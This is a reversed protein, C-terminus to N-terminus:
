TISETLDRGPVPEAAAVGVQDRRIVDALRLRGTRGASSPDANGKMTMDRSEMVLAAKVQRAMTPNFLRILVSMARLVPRPVRAVKGPRGAVEQVIRTFDAFSLDEPGGVEVVTKQLSPDFIATEVVEAVDAASVFNVPNQGSGFIRTKGTRILPEGVVMMWTEMFPTARVITWRLSSERLAREARAKMQFLDMPHDASAGVVSLLVFHEVGASEAAQILSRNGQWDITSPSVSAGGDFGHAAAVVTRVGQVAHAVSEPDRMDGRMMEVGHTPVPAPNRSLVRVQERRSILRRVLQSGMKGTGGVVLIV